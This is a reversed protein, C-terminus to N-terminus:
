DTEEETFYNYPHPKSLTAFELQGLQEIPKVNDSPVAAAHVHHVYTHTFLSIRKSGQIAEPLM